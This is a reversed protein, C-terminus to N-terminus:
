KKRCIFIGYFFGIVTYPILLILWILSMSPSFLTSIFSLLGMIVTEYGVFRNIKHAKKPEINYNKIYDLRSIGVGTIIFLVGVIVMCSKRIDIAWGLSYGFTIIQLVISMIPIIWKTITEFNNRNTHNKLNFDNVICCFIQVAAMLLPLGFVAFGKSAFNDPEGQLNFHIAITDPLKDWLAIGIIIPLLCVIVTIILSKWKIYKM